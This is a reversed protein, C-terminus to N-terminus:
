YILKRFVDDYRTTSKYKGWIHCLADINKHKELVFHNVNSM